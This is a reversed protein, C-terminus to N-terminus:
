QPYTLGVRQLFCTVTVAAGVDMSVSMLFGTGSGNTGAVHIKAHEVVHHAAWDDYRM